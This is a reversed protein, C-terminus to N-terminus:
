CSIEWLDLGNSINWWKKPNLHCLLKGFTKSPHFIFVSYYKRWPSKRSAIEILHRLPYTLLILFVTTFQHMLCLHARLVGEERDWWKRQKPTLHSFQPFLRSFSRKPGSPVFLHSGTVNAPYSGRVTGTPRSGQRPLRANPGNTMGRGMRVQSISQNENIEIKKKEKPNM